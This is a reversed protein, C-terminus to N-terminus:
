KAFPFIILSSFHDFLTIYLSFVGIKPINTWLNAHGSEVGFAPVGNKAKVPAGVNPDVSL